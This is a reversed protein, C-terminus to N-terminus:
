GEDKKGGRGDESLIYRTISQTAHSIDALQVDHPLRVHAFFSSQLRRLQLSHRLTLLIKAKRDRQACEDYVYM